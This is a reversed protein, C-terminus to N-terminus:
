LSMNCFTVNYQANYYATSLVCECEFLVPFIANIQKSRAFSRNLFLAEDTEV